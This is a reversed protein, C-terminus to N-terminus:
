DVYQRTYLFKRTGPEAMLPTVQAFPEAASCITEGPLADTSIPRFTTNPGMEQAVAWHTVPVIAGPPFPFTRFHLQRLALIQTDLPAGRIDESVRNCCSM